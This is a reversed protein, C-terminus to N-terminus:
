TCMKVILIFTGVSKSSESVKYHVLMVIKSLTMSTGIAVELSRSSIMGSFLGIRKFTDNKPIIDVKGSSSYIPVNIISDLIM